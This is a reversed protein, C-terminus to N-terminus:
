ILSNFLRFIKYGFEIVKLAIFVQMKIVYDLKRSLENIDGWNQFKAIYKQHLKLHMLYGCALLLLEHQM